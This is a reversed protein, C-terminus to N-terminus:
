STSGETSVVTQGGVFDAPIHPDEKEVSLDPEGNYRPAGEYPSWPNQGSRITGQVSPGRLGLIPSNNEQVGRRQRSDNSIEKWM